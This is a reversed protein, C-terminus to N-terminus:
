TSWPATREGKHPVEAQNVRIHIRRIVSDQLRAAREQEHGQALGGHAHLVDKFLLVVPCDLDAATCPRPMRAATGSPLIQGEHLDSARGSEQERPPDGLAQPGTCTNNTNICSECMYDVGEM